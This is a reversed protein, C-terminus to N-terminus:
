ISKRKYTVFRHPYINKEDLVGFEEKVIEWASWDVAPFYTDGNFNGEVFTVILQDAIPLFLKYIEAGGIVFASKDMVAKKVEDISHVMTCGLFQIDKDRTLVLNERNPLPRGLSEFTKRGMIVPHGSTTKKFFALDSPLRWPLANNHGILRSKDMAWILSLMIEEM